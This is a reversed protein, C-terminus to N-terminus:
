KFQKTNNRIEVMQKTFLIILSTSCQFDSRGSNNTLIYAFSSNSDTANGPIQLVSHMFTIKGPDLTGHWNRSALM